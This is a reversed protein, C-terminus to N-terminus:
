DFISLQFNFHISSHKFTYIGSHFYEFLWDILWNEIRLEGKRGSDEDKRRRRFRLCLSAVAFTACLSLLPLKSVRGLWLLTMSLYPVRHFRIRSRGGGRGNGGAFITRFLSVAFKELCFFDSKGSEQLLPEREDGFLSEQPWLTTHPCFVSYRKESLHFRNFFCNCCRDLVYTQSLLVIFQCEFCESDIGCLSTVLLHLKKMM